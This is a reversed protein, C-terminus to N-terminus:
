IVPRGEFIATGIRVLTAGEEIAIEFDDSMGMSLYKMEVPPVPLESKKSSTVAGKIKLSKCASFINRLKKFAARRAEPDPSNPAMGMLGMVKVQSFEGIAELATYIEEPSFGYKEEEGSVNVEVLVPFVKGALLCENHIKEALRVTDVSQILSFIETATKVKNSQLHGVMQWQVEIGQLESIKLVAEQVKNEAFIRLGADYAELIAEKQAKKTVAVITIDNLTRGSKKAAADVRTQVQELKERITTM